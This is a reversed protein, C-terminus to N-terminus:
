VSLALGWVTDRLTGSDRGRKDLLHIREVAFDADDSREFPAWPRWVKGGRSRQLTEAFDIRLNQWGLM